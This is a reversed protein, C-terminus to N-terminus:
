TPHAALWGRVQEAHEHPPFIPYFVHEIVDGRVVLTLRSYFPQGGAQFTPLDLAAGLRFEPDSLLPYPLHLRAALEAQYASGQHSLGLVAPAGVARLDGLLDRFACAEPTCGRAGPIGDWGDPMDEGPVGTTPYVFLVWRGGSVGRLNVTDGDPTRLSLDPLRRGPLHRARGDDKPVPLGEPLGYRPREPVVPFGASAASTLRAQLAARRESLGVILADLRRVEARYAWLSEACTDGHEHGQRLCAVFPRTADASLGLGILESVQRAVVVELEDYVRYGNEARGPRILGLGEYYRLAKVSVGAQVAAEAARM